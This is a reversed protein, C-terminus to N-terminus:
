IKYHNFKMPWHSDSPCSGYSKWQWLRYYYAKEFLVSGSSVAWHATEDPDVSSSMWDKLKVYLRRELRYNTLIFFCVVNKTTQFKTGFSNLFNQHKYVIAWNYVFLGFLVKLVLKTLFKPTRPETTWLTTLKVLENLTMENVTKASEFCLKRFYNASFIHTAKAICFRSVNKWCFNWCIQTDSSTFKLSDNVLLM